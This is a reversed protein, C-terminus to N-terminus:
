AAERRALRERLVHKPLQRFFTVNHERLLAACERAGVAQSKNASALHERYESMQEFIEVTCDGLAAWNKSGYSFPEELRKMWHESFGRNKWSGTRPTKGQAAASAHSERALSTLPGRATSLFNQCVMPLAQELAARAFFPEAELRRFVEKALTHPDGANSDNWVSRIYKRLSFEDNM